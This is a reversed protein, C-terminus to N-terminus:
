HESVTCSISGFALPHYHASGVTKSETPAGIFVAWNSAAVAHGFNAFPKPVEAFLERVAALQGDELCYLLAAGSDELNSRGASERAGVIVVNNLLAVSSGLRSGTGLNDPMLTTTEQWTDNQRTYLVATGSRPGNTEAAPAGVVLRDEALAISYGFQSGRIGHQLVIEQQWQEDVLHYLYVADSLHAGVAIISEHVAVAWGFLDSNVPGGSKGTTLRAQQQWDRVTFITASGVHLMEGQSFRYPAGVVATEGDLAVAWGFRADLASGPLLKRQQRWEGAELQFVYVAGAEWGAADHGSAGVLLTQDHIAVSHGFADNAAGDSATLRASERWQQGDWQFMYVAGAANDARPASVVLTNEWAAVATGFGEAQAPVALQLTPVAVFDSAQSPDDKQLPLLVKEVTLSTTPAESRIPINTSLATAAESEVLPSEYQTIFLLTVTVLFGLILAIVKVM